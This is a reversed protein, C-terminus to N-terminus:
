LAPCDQPIKIMEEVPFGQARAIATLEDVIAQDLRPDRALIWLFKRSSNGVLAYQYNERDLAIIQYDGSFPWFFTVKLRAPDEPDPVKAKGTVRKVTGSEQTDVGSNEVEIKADELLTYRAQVCILDKEFRNPLREIEYWVGQYRELDVDGVVELELNGTVCSFMGFGATILLAHVFRLVKM